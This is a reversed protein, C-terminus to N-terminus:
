QWDSWSSSFVSMPDVTGLTRQIQCHYEWTGEDDAIEAVITGVVYEAGMGQYDIHLVVDRRPIRSNVSFCVGGESLNRTTGLLSDFDKEDWFRPYLVTIPAELPHRPASRREPGGYHSAAQM